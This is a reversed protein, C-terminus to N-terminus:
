LEEITIKVQVKGHWSHICDKKGIPNHWIVGNGPIDLEWTKSTWGKLSKKRKAM